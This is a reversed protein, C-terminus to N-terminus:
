TAPEENSFPLHVDSSLGRGGTESIVLITDLTVNFEVIDYMCVYMCVYM